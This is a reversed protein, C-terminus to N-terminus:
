ESVVGDLGVERSVGVWRDTRVVGVRWGERRMEEEVTKELEWRATGKVGWARVERVVWEFGGVVCGRGNGDGWERWMQNPTVEPPMFALALLACIPGVTIDEVEMEIEFTAVEERPPLPTTLRYPLIPRHRILLARLEPLVLSLNYTKNETRSLSTTIYKVDSLKIPAHNPPKASTTISGTLLSDILTSIWHPPINRTEVLFSCLHLFTLLTLPQNIHYAVNHIQRSVPFALKFFMTTLWCTFLPKPPLSTPVSLAWRYASTLLEWPKDETEGREIPAEFDIEQQTMLRTLGLFTKATDLNPLCTYEALTRTLGEPFGMPNALINTQTFGSPKLLPLAHLTTSIHGGTYDPINSLFITDYSTPIGNCSREGTDYRICDLQHNVEDIRFEVTINLQSLVDACSRMIPMCLEILSPPSNSQKFQQLEIINYKTHGNWFREVTELPDISDNWVNHWKSYWEPEQFLTVNVEWNKRAYESLSAQKEAIPKSRDQLLPLLEPEEDEMLQQPPFMMMSFSFILWEPELKFVKLLGEELLKSQKVWQLVTQAYRVDFRKTLDDMDNLWYKLVARITTATNPDCRLWPLDFNEGSDLLTQMTANLRSFVYAPMIDRDFVYWIASLISIQEKKGEAQDEIRGPILSIDHLMRFLIVNRAMVHPKWDQLTFSFKDTSLIQNKERWEKNYAYIHHLQQYFHRCDGVGGYFFSVDLPEPANQKARKVLDEFDIGALPMDHGRPFYEGIGSHLNPRYIPIGLTEERAKRKDQETIERFNEIASLVIKADKDDECGILTQGAEVVRNLNFYCKAERITLASRKAPDNELKLADHIVAICGEYDGIEYKASSLMRRPAPDNADLSISELYKEVAIFEFHLDIFRQIQPLIWGEEFKGKNYLENGELTKTGSISAM